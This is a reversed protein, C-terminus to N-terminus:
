DMATASRDGIICARAVWPDVGLNLKAGRIVDFDIVRSLDAVYESSSITRKLLPSRRTRQEFLIRKVGDLSNELLENARTQIFGTVDATRRGAM